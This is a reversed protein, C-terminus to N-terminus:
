RHGPDLGDPGVWGAPPGDLLHADAHVRVDGEHDRVSVRALRPDHGYTTARETMMSELVAQAENPLQPWIGDLQGQLKRAFDSTGHQMLLPANWALEVLVMAQQLDEAPGKPLLGHLIPEGFELLTESLKPLRELEALPLTKMIQSPADPAKPRNPKKTVALDYMSYAQVAV